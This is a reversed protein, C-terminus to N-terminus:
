PGVSVVMQDVAATRSPSRPPTGGIPRGIALVRTYTSSSASRAAGEPATPSSYM